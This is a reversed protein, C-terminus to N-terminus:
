AIISCMSRTQGYSMASVKIERGEPKYTTSLYHELEAPTGKLIPLTGYHM